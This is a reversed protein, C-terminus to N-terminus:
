RQLFADLVIASPGLAVTVTTSGVEHGIKGVRRIGALATEAASAFESADAPTDWVTVLALATDGEPGRLLALRDGGWGATAVRAQALPVDGETLWTRLILEGLTDEGAASWGAGLAAAAGAPIAVEIPDERTLYKDPHLIQETSDPPDRYAADVAAYGNGSAILRSVFALGDQYPFLATERLFAPARQLAALAEPDLAEALLQGLEESTLNQQTWTQQAFSADGEILALRGLSRDSQEADSIGLSGLDVHQDQLQHTFEHAYTVRDSPGLAAGRRVVYLEDREPSYYGAVQGSQFDLTLARLSAGPQLFGLAILMDEAVALEEPSNEADFEAELNTRLQAEDIGVPDVDATPTLGRIAVVDARIRAYTADAVSGSEGPAPSDAPATSTPPPTPTAPVPSCAGLALALGILAALPCAARAPM